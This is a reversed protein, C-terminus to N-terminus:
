NHPQWDIVRLDGQAIQLNFNFLYVAPNLSSNPSWSVASAAVNDPAIDPRRRAVPQKHLWYEANDSLVYHYQVHKMIANFLNVTKVANQHLAIGLHPKDCDQVQIRPAPGCHKLNLHASQNEDDPTTRASPFNLHMVVAYIDTKISIQRHLNLLNLSLPPMT